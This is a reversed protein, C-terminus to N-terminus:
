QDMRLYSWRSEQRRVVEAVGSDVTASFPLLQERTVHAKKMSQECASFVVGRHTLAELRGALEEDDRRLLGLGKGHAVVEIEIDGPFVGILHDVNELLGKWHEPAAGTIEIVVHHGPAGHEAGPAAAACALLAACALAVARARM